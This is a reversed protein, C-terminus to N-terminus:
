YQIIRGEAELDASCGRKKHDKHERVVVTWANKQGM